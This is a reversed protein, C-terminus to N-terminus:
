PVRSTCEPAGSSLEQAEPMAMLEVIAAAIDNDTM